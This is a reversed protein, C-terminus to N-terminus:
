QELHGVLESHNSCMISVEKRHLNTQITELSSGPKARNQRDYRTNRGWKKWWEFDRVDPMTM